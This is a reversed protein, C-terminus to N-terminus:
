KITISITFTLDTKELFNSIPLDVKSFSSNNDLVTKFNRLSDRSTATGHIELIASKEIKNFLIQSFTIGETRISLINNLVKDGVQYAIQNKKLLTLKSNIDKTIKDINNNALEPNEENLMTLKENVLNEKSKSLFYPPFLLLTSIIGAVIIMNLLVIDFRMWYEKHTLKKEEEPLINILPQSKYMYGGLALGLVTAYRLSEEFPMAPVSNEIDSINVWVNANDVKTKMSLELYDSLGALNADGGCLIIHNIQEHEANNNNHTEWYIYQKNLEDRLVSLGNLIAPFINEAKSANNLGYEHKMKEADEFSLSFDKAIMNTLDVGGISLTTTLYVRGNKSISVGTRNEGFDVIMVPGNDDSPIVARALAQAEIEFSIPILGSKEFVSLYSKITTEAIAVVEILINQNDQKIIDFDFVVDPAKLPVYGEIQLLIMDKINENDTKPISLTFLYIQEEPLSVRIFHLNEKEKIKKLIKIIEDEKEIKGSIVVDKPIKEIGYKSLVLGESTVGLEGYKISQDSIDIACANMAMYSPAPFYHNYLRKM